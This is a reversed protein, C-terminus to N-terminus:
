EKTFHESVFRTLSDFIALDALRETARPVARLRSGPEYAIAFSDRVRMFVKTFADVIAKDIQDDPIEPWRMEPKNEAVAQSGGSWDVSGPELKLATKADWGLWDPEEVMVTDTTLGPPLRRHEIGYAVMNRFGALLARLLREQYMAAFTIPRGDQGGAAEMVVAGHYMLTGLHSPETFQDLTIRTGPEAFTADFATSRSKRSRSVM